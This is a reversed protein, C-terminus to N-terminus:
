GMALHFDFNFFSFAEIFQRNHEQYVGIDDVDIIVKYEKYPSLWKNKVAEDIEITDCVPCFKNLLV